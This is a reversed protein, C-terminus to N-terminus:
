KSWFDFLQLTVSEADDSMLNMGRELGVRGALRVPFAQPKQNERHRKSRGRPSWTLSISNYRNFLM